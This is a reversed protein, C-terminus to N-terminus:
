ARVIDIVNNINRIRGIMNTLEEKSEVDFSVNITFTDDKSNRSELSYIDINNETFLRSVDVILGKRNKCYINLEARFSKKEGLENDWSINILRSKEIDPLSIINQCDTRHITIGRGRTIYGIIEDGPVPGCCKAYHVSLGSVGNITAGSSNDKRNKEKEKANELSELISEDTEKEKNVKAYEDQLKSLFQGERLGGHGIMAYIDDLSESTYKKYCPKLFEEKLLASLNIRHSKAYKEILEKGIVINEERREKKFWHQIKSRAQPSKAINLWDRSPGNSNGSTIISIQDGNKINYDIPVLVGNAKAGVMRNGVASHIMYAFDIPTSGQPLTIVDGEPTFCYIKSKFLDLDDKVFSLFENSNDSEINANLIDKLWNMNNLDDINKVGESNGQEKYAWHAAVGYEAVKDMDYTRIQIEFPIGEKGLVTTHLSQYNNQKPMAIYDKFRGPIPKYYEHIIGLTAYCDKIDNVLIRIAFLDYIEDLNKAKNRLKKYISFLNKVRGKIEAKVNNKELKEKVSEIIEEVFKERVEKRLKIGKQLEIYEKPKLYMLALDDMESKLKSIGLRNAIPSYIEITELSKEEQKEKTQYELTRLNHLRDALKIIIVRIDKSMAIFMHRLNEAQKEVKDNVINLQTLKTVGDVLNAIRESFDRELDKLEYGTDEVTDHLIGAAITEADMHLNALIIAVYLPHIIYEEGSKRKQGFHLKEAIKYAKNILELENDNFYKNIGDFLLKFIEEKQLTKKPIEILETKTNNTDM